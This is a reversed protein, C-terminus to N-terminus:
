RPVPRHLIRCGRDGAGWRVSGDGAGSHPVSGSRRRAPLAAPARPFGARPIAAARARVPPLLVASFGNGSWRMWAPRRCKEPKNRRAIARAAAGGAAAAMAHIRCRMAALAGGCGHWFPLAATSAHGRHLMAAFVNVKQRVKIGLYLRVPMRCPKSHEFSVVYDIPVYRSAARHFGARRRRPCTM